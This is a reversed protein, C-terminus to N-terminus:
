ATALAALLEHAPMADFDPEDLLLYALDAARSDGYAAALNALLKARL